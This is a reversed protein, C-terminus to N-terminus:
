ASINIKNKYSKIESYNKVAQNSQNQKNLLDYNNIYLSTFQLDNSILKKNLNNNMKFTTKENTTKSDKFSETSNKLNSELDLNKKNKDTNNAIFKNTIKNAAWSGLGKIIGLPGALLFGGVASQIVDLSKNSKTIFNKISSVVPLHNLPNITDMIWSFKTKKETNIKENQLNSNVLKKKYLDRAKFHSWSPGQHPLKFYKNEM